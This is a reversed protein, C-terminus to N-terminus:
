VFKTKKADALNKASQQAATKQQELRIKVKVLSMVFPLELKM